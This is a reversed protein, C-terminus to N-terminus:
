ASEAGGPYFDEDVPLGLAALRALTQREFHMNADRVDACWGSLSIEAYPALGSERLKAGVDNAELKDLLRALCQDLVEALVDAPEFAAEESLVWIERETPRGPVAFTEGIKASKTPRLGLVVEIDPLTRGKPGLVKLSARVTNPLKSV